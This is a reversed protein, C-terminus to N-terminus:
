VFMQQLFGKKYENLSDLKEQEKYIKNDLCNLFKSINKQEDLSPLMIPINSLADVSLTQRVSGELRKKVQENFYHTKMFCELYSSDLEKLCSFCTYM